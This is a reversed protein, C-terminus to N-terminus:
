WYEDELMQLRVTIEAEKGQQIKEIILELIEAYEPFNSFKQLLQYLDYIFQDRAFRPM